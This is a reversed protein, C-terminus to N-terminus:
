NKTFCIFVSSLCALYRHWEEHDKDSTPITIPYIVTEATVACALQNIVIVNGYLRPAKLTM